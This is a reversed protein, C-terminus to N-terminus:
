RRDNMVPPGVGGLDGGVSQGLCRTEQDRLLNGVLDRGVLELDYAEM